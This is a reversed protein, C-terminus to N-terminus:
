KREPSNRNYTGTIDQSKLINKICDYGRRYKPHILGSIEQKRKGKRHAVRSFNFREPIIFNLTAACKRIEGKNRRSSVRRLVFVTDRRFPSFYLRLFSLPLRLLCTREVRIVGEDRGAAGVALPWTGGQVSTLVTTCGKRGKEIRSCICAFTYINMHADACMRASLIAYESFPYSCLIRALVIRARRPHYQPYISVSEPRLRGYLTYPIICIPPQM